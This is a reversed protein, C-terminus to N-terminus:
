FHITIWIGVIYWSGLGVPPVHVRYARAAAVIFRLPCPLCIHFGVLEFIVHWYPDRANKVRIARSDAAPRQKAADHRVKDFLCQVIFVYGHEPISLLGPTEREHAVLDLAEQAQCM